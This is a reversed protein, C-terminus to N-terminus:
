SWIWPDKMVIVDHQGAYRCRLKNMVYTAVQKYINKFTDNLYVISWLLLNEINFLLISFVAKGSLFM